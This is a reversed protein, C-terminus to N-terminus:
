TGNVINVGAAIPGATALWLWGLSAVVPLSQRPQVAFGGTQGFTAGGPAILAIPNWTLVGASGASLTGYVTVDSLNNILITPGTVQVALPTPGVSVNGGPGATFASLAM